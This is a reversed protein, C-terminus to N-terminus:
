VANFADELRWRQGYLAAAYLVPLAAAYLVPLAQPELENTLYRRWTGGYCAEILRVQQRAADRGIWALADRATDTRQLWAAM